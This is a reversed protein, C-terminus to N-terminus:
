KKSLKKRKLFIAILIIITFIFILTILIIWQEINLYQIKDVKLDDHKDPENAGNNPDLPHVDVLDGLGDGDTDNMTPDTGQALELTDSVGDNDDDLDANNGLGDNDSDCWESIDNPFADLKDYVKDFDADNLIGVEIPEKLKGYIVPETLPYQDKAEESGYIDLAISWYGNTSTAVNNLYTYEWWFNGIEFNYWNNRKGLDQAQPFAKHKLM